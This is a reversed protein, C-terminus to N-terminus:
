MNTKCIQPTEEWVQANNLKTSSHVSLMWKTCGLKLLCSILLHSFLPYKTTHCCAKSKVSSQLNSNWLACNVHILLECEITWLSTGNTNKL